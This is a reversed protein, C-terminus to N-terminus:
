GTSSFFEPFRTKVVNFIEEALDAISQNGNLIVYRNSKSALGLIKDHVRRLYDEGRGEFNDNENMARHPQGDLVFTLDPILMGTTAQHLRWLFAAKWGAGSGQYMLTSDFFRDSIVVKGAKLAPKLVEKYHQSRDAMQLFLETARSLGKEYKLIERLKQGVQTGGPERTLVSNIGARKMNEQLQLSQTTGGLGEASKEFTIFLGKYKRM